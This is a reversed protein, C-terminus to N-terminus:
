GRWRWFSESDSMSWFCAFLLSAITSSPWICCRRFSNRSFCCVRNSAVSYFFTHSQQGNTACASFVSLFAVTLM